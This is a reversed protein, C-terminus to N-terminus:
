AIARAMTEIALKGDANAKRYTDIIEAESPDLSYYGYEISESENRGMLEDLTIGYIDALRCLMNSDIDRVEREYNQYTKKPIGLIEAIESQTYGNRKRYKALKMVSVKNGM